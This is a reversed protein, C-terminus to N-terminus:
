QFGTWLTVCAGRITDEAAVVRDRFKNRDIELVAARNLKWWNNEIM